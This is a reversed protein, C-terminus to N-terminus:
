HSNLRRLLTKGTSTKFNDDLIQEFTDNNLKILGDATNVLFDAEWLVQFDQGDIKDRTHHHGIIYCVREVIDPRINLRHLLERAIPPGELEQYEPIASNYKRFAEPIGIDHYISALVIVQQMYGDPYTQTLNDGMIIEEAHHLVRLAHEIRDIDGKFYERMSKVAKEKDM